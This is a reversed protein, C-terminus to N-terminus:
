AAPVARYRNLLAREAADLPRSTEARMDFGVLVADGRVCLRGDRDLVSHRLTYSTTGLHLVEVEVTVPASDDKVPLLFEADMRRVVVAGGVSGASHLFKVRAEQMYEVIKANNVHGLRDSDGWRVEITCRFPGTPVADTM